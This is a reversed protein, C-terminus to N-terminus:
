EYSELMISVLEDETWRLHDREMLATDKGDDWWICPIGREAAKQTYYKTWALRMADDHKKQCGFETIVVPIRKKLFLEEVDEMIVDIRATDDESNVDWVADEDDGLTFTYPVYAHVSVIIKDDKPIELAELAERRYQSCYAPVLLWRSENEGGTGRVTEVFSANLRNVVGQMEPTGSTWEEDSDELRPENMSEFLLHEDRDKFNEAIQGWIRCLQAEDQAETEETPILWKEHHMDLIVYLDEELAWDVVQTVRAMWEPKINGEEDLHEGWSVQKGGKKM